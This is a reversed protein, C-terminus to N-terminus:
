QAGGNLSGKPAKRITGTPDGQRVMRLTNGSIKLQLTRTPGVLMDQGTAPNRGVRAARVVPHFRGFNTITTAQGAAAGRAIADFASHLVAHVNAPETGTEEAVHRILDQMHM